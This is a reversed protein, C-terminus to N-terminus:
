TRDEHKEADATRLGKAPKGPRGGGSARHVLRRLSDTIGTPDPEGGKRPRVVIDWGTPLQERQLRFAERILRKWRNRHPATGVRRPMSIGLRSYALRNAVLTVVLRQDIGVLKSHYATQFTEADRVRLWHPFAQSGPPLRRDPREGPAGDNATQQIAEASDVAEARQAAPATAAPRDPSDRRPEM